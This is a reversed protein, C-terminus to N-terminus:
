EFIKSRKVSTMARLREVAFECAEFAEKRHPSSVAAALIVTAWPAAVVSPAMQGM